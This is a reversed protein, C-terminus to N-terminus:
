FSYFVSLKALRKLPATQNFTGDWGYSYSTFGEHVLPRLISQKVANPIAFIRLKGAGEVQFGLRQPLSGTSFAEFGLLLTNPSFSGTGM